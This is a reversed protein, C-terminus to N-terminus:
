IKEYKHKYHRRVTRDAYLETPSSDHQRVIRDTFQRDAFQGDAFHGHVPLPKSVHFNDWLLSLQRNSDSAILRPPVRFNIEWNPFKVFKFITHQTEQPM